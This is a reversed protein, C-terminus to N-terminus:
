ASLWVPLLAHLWAPVWADSSVPPVARRAEERRPLLEDLIESLIGKRRAFAAGNPAVIPDADSQGAQVIVPWGQVPRAVHDARDARCAADGRGLKVKFGAM